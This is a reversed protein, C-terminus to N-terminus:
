DLDEISVVRDREAVLYKLLQRPRQDVWPRDAVQGGIEVRTIGLARVQVTSGVPEPGAVPGPRRLEVVLSRHRPGLSSASIRAPGRGRPLDIAVDRIVEHGALVRTTICGGGGAEHAPTCGLVTCCTRGTIGDATVGLMARLARNAAAVEGSATVVMLGHPFNDFLSALQDGGPGSKGAAEAVLKLERGSVVAVGWPLCGM